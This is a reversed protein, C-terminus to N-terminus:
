HQIHKPNVVKPISKYSNSISLSKNLSIRKKEQVKNFNVKAKNEIENIIKEMNEIQSSDSTRIKIICKQKGYSFSDHNETGFVNIGKKLFLQKIMKTDIANYDNGKNEMEYKHIVGHSLKHEKSYMQQYFDKDYLTSIHHIHKSITSSEKNKFFDKVIKIEDGKTITKDCKFKLKRHYGKTFNLDNDNKMQTQNAQTMLCQHNAKSPTTSQRLKKQLVVSNQNEKQASNFINSQRMRMSIEVATKTADEGLYSLSKTISISRHKAKRKPKNSNDNNYLYTNIGLSSGYKRFKVVNADYEIRQDKKPLCKLKQVRENHKKVFQTKNWYFEPDYNSVLKNNDNTIPKIDISHHTITRQYKKNNIKVNPSNNRQNIIESSDRKPNLQIPQINFIDSGFYYNYILHKSM